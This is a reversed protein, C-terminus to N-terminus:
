GPKKQEGGKAEPPKEAGRPPPVLRPPQPPQPPRPPGGPAAGAPQPQKVMDKPPPALEEEEEPAPRTDTRPNPTYNLLGVVILALAVLLLGGSCFLWLVPVAGAPRGQKQRRAAEEEEPTALVAVAVALDEGCAPCQVPEDPREELLTLVNGCSCTLQV